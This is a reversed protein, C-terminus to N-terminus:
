FSYNFQLLLADVDPYLELGELEPLDANLDGKSTQLYYELRLAFTNGSHLKKGYKIGVTYATLEGIRYDASVFEPLPESDLIYRQYFDAAAQSYVRFHPQLYSADSMPIRYRGELTHASLGWDDDSFRYSLDLVGSSLYYKSQAFLFNKSRTEPRNEYHHGLALGSADVRTVVKFPDTLYGDVESIGMNFQMIWNRNMVQSVGLILDLTDKSEDKASRTADFATQFASESPYQGTNIVMESLPVPIGGEPGISDAAYSFGLSLTTNNRNFDRAFSGNVAVSTYDYENSFHLGGSLTNEEGFPQTWQANLQVRTDHFTDDLPTEGVSVEFQGNGSPRTFTQVQNQPLAGNASAGTLADVVLKGSFLHEEGFDKSAQVVGEAASVRDVESYILVATDFNWADDEGSAQTPAGILSCAAASLLGSVNKFRKNLQM